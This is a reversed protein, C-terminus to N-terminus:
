KVRTGKQLCSKTIGVAAGATQIYTTQSNMEHQGLAACTGRNLRM